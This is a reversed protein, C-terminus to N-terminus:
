KWLCHVQVLFALTQRSTLPRCSGAQKGSSQAKWYPEATAGRAPGQWSSPVSPGRVLCGGPFVAEMLHEGGYSLKTITDVCLQGSQDRVESVTTDPPAWYRSYRPIHYLCCLSPWETIHATLSPVFHSLNQGFPESPHTHTHKVFLCVEPLFISVM